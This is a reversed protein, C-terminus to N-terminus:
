SAAAGRGDNILDVVVKYVYIYGTKLRGSLFLRLSYFKDSFNKYFTFIQLNDKKWRM